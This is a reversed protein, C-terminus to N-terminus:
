SSVTPFQNADMLSAHSYHSPALIPAGFGFICLGVVIVLGTMALRNRRFRRVAMQRGTRTPKLADANVINIAQSDPNVPNATVVM